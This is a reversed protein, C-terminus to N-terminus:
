RIDFTRAGTAQVQIYIGREPALIEVGPRSCKIKIRNGKKNPSVGTSQFELAYQVRLAEAISNFGSEMEFKNSAEFFRGGSAAAISRLERMNRHMQINAGESSQPTAIFYLQTGTRGGVAMAQDLPNWSQDLPYWSENNGGDTIVVLVRHTPKDAAVHDSAAVIVDYIASGGYPPVAALYKLGQDLVSLDDTLHADIVVKNNFHIVFAKDGPRLVRRFFGSALSAEPGPWQTRRSGSTDILLGVESPEPPNFTLVSISQEQKGIWLQLDEKKLDTVPHGKTTATIWLRAAGAAMPARTQGYLGVSCQLAALFMLALLYIRGWNVLYGRWWKARIWKKM